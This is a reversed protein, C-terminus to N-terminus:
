RYLNKAKLSNVQLDLLGPAVWYDEGGLVQRGNIPPEIVQIVGNKLSFDYLQSTLYHRGRIIAMAM